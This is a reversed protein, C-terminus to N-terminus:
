SNGVRIGAKARANGAIAAFKVYEYKSIIEGPWSALNRRAKVSIHLM